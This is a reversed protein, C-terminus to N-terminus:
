RSSVYDDSFVRRVVVVYDILTSYLHPTPPQCVGPHPSGWRIPSPTCMESNVVSVRDLFWGNPTIKKAAM